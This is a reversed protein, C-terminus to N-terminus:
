SPGGGRLQEALRGALTGIDGAGMTLLIDGENLTATLVRVLEAGDQVFVPEIRGRVRIARCLSRADVGPIPPEGAAYVELMVLEDVESLV